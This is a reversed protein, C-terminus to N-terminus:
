FFTHFLLFHSQLLYKSRKELKFHHLQATLQESEDRVEFPAWQTEIDQEESMGGPGYTNYLRRAAIMCREWSTGYEVSAVPEPRLRTVVSIVGGMADSGWVTSNSGRLLEVREVEGLLLNGFDFGGGPSAVDSVRVGDVLVLTQESAAGRVFVGTFGGVPGNRAVTVGPAREILRVIDPGQVVDVEGLVTVAQGVEDVREPEGTVIMTWPAGYPDGTVIDATEVADQAMAPASCVVAATATAFLYGPKRM